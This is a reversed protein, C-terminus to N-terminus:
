ILTLSPCLARPRAWLGPEPGQQGGEWVPVRPRAARQPGAPVSPLGEAPPPGHCLRGTAMVGLDLLVREAGERELVPGPVGRCAAKGAWGPAACSCALTLGCHTPQLRLLGSRLSGRGGRPVPWFSLPQQAPRLKALIPQLSQSLHLQTSSPAPRSGLGLGAAVLKSCPRPPRLLAGSLGNSIVIILVNFSM